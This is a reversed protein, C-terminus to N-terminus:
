QPDVIQADDVGSEDGNARDDAVAVHAGGQDVDSVLALKVDNRGAALPLKNDTIIQLAM